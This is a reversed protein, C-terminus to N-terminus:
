NTLKLTQNNEFIPTFYRPSIKLRDNTGAKKSFKLTTIHMIRPHIRGKQLHSHFVVRLQGKKDRFISHHGVGVLKGPSQLIPNEDYKKWPGTIAEATACGIGYLPSEYSNASYTLYFLNNHEIICPGENVAPWVREWPQQMRICFRETGPKISKLDAELEAMWIENGSCFRVWFLYPIGNHDIFLTNDIGREESIPSKNTQIFPGLPSKAEAVCIHEEASYYMYYTDKIYYVEPAWFWRSGYSDKKHLALFDSDGQPYSWRRLDKSILVAIGHESSSGYAYYTGKDYLIFPDALPVFANLNRAKGLNPLLLSMLLLIQLLKAM